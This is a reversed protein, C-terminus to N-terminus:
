SQQDLESFFDFARQQYDIANALDGKRKYVGAIELYVFGRKEDLDNNVTEFIYLVQNLLSIARDHDKLKLYVKAM